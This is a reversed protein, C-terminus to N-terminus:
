YDEGARAPQAGLFQPNYSANQKWTVTQEKAIQDNTDDIALRIANLREWDGEEFCLKDEVQLNMLHQQLKYLKSM